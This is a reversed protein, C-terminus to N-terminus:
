RANTKKKRVFPNDDTKAEIASRIRTRDSPNMGFAAMMSYASEWAHAARTVFPSTKPKKDENVIFRGSKAAYKRAEIYDGLAICLGICAMYDGITLVGASHLDPTIIDWADRAYETMIDAHKGLYEEPAIREKPMKFKPENKPMPRKGPNGKVLRIATPTPKQAM